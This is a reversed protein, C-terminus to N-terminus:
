VVCTGCSHEILDVKAITFVRRKRKKIERMNYHLYLYRCFINNGNENLLFQVEKLIM